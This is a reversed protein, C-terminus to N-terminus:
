YIPDSIVRDVRLGNAQFFYPWAHDGRLGLHLLHLKENRGAISLIAYHAWFRDDPPRTAVPEANPEPRSVLLKLHKTPFLLDDFEILNEYRENGICEDLNFVLNTDGGRTYHEIEDRVTEKGHHPACFILANCDGLFPLCHTFDTIGADHPPRQPGPFWCLRKRRLTEIWGLTYAHQIEIPTDLDPPDVGDLDHNDGNM